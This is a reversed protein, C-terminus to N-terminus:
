HRPTHHVASHAPHHPLVYPDLYAARWQPNTPGWPPSPPPTAVRSPRPISRPPPPAWTLDGQPRRTWLLWRMPGTPTTTTLTLHRRRARRRTWIPGYLSMSILHAYGPLHALNLRARVPPYTGTASLAHRRLDGRHLRCTTLNKRWWRWHRWLHPLGRLPPLPPRPTATIWTLVTAQSPPASTHPASYRALRRPTPRPRTRGFLLDGGETPGPWTIVWGTVLCHSWASGGPDPDLLSMAPTRKPNPCQHTGPPSRPRPPVASLRQGTRPPSPPCPQHDPPRTATRYLTLIPDLAGPPIPSAPRRNVSSILVSKHPHPRNPARPTSPARLHARLEPTLTPGLGAVPNNLYHTLTSQAWGATQTWTTIGARLDRPDRDTAALARTRLLAFEQAPLLPETPTHLCHLQRHIDRWLDARQHLTLRHAPDQSAHGAQRHLLYGTEALLRLGTIPHGRGPAPPLTMRWALATVEELRGAWEDPVARRPLPLPWAPGTAQLTPDVPLRPIGAAAQQVWNAAATVLPDPSPRTLEVALEALDAIQAWVGQRATPTTLHKPRPAAWEDAQQRAAMVHLPPGHSAILDDAVRVALTAEAVDLATGRPEPRPSSTSTLDSRALARLATHLAAAPAGTAGITAGLHALADALDALYPIPAAPDAGPHRARAQATLLNEHAAAALDAYRTVM